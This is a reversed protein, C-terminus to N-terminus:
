KVSVKMMGLQTKVKSLSINNIEKAATPACNIAPFKKPFVNILYQLSDSGNIKQGQQFVIKFANVIKQSDKLM